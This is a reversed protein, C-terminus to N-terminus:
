QEERDFKRSRVDAQWELVHLVHAAEHARQKLEAARREREADALDAEGNSPPTLDAIADLVRSGRRFLRKLRTIM